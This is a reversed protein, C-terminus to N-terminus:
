RLQGYPAAPNATQDLLPNLQLAKAKLEPHYASALLVADPNTPALAYAKEVVPKVLEPQNKNLRRALGILKPGDTQKTLFKQLDTQATKLGQAIVTNAQAQLDNNSWNWFAVLGLVAIAAPVYLLLRNTNTGM